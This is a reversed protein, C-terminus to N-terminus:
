SGKVGFLALFRSMLSGRLGDVVLDPESRLARAIGEENMDLIPRDFDSDTHTDEFNM